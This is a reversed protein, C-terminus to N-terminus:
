ATHKRTNNASAFLGAGPVPIQAITQQGDQLATDHGTVSWTQDATSYYLVALSSPTLANQTIETGVLAIQVNSVVVSQPSISIASSDKSIGGNAIPSLIIGSPLGVQDGLGPYTTPDVSNV